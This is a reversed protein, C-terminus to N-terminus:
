RWSDTLAKCIDNCHHSTYFNMPYIVNHIATWPTYQDRILIQNLFVSFEQQLNKRFQKGGTAINWYLPCASPLDGAAWHYVICPSFLELSIQFVSLSNFSNSSRFDYFCISSPSLMISHFAKLNENCLFSLDTHNYVFIIWNSKNLRVQCM